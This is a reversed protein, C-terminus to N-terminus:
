ETQSGSTGDTSEDAKDEDDSTKASGEDNKKEVNVVPPHNKEDPEAPASLSNGGFMVYMAKSTIPHVFDHLGFGASFGFIFGVFLLLCVPTCKTSGSVSCPSNANESHATETKSM